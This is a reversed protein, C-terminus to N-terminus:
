PHSGLYIIGMRNAEDQCFKVLETKDTLILTKDQWSKMHQVRLIYEIWGVQIDFKNQRLNVVHQWIRPREKAYKQVRRHFQEIQEQTTQLLFRISIHLLANPSRNHNIIRSGAIAYNDVTCVENTSSLRLTSTMLDIDEKM